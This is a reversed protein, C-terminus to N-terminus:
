NGRGANAMGQEAQMARLEDCICLRESGVKGVKVLVCYHNGCRYRMWMPFYEFIPPVLNSNASRNYM